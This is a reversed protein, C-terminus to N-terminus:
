YNFKLIYDIIRVILKDSYYQTKKLYKQICIDLFSRPDTDNLNIGTQKSLEVWENDWISIKRFYGPSYKAFYEECQRDFYYPGRSESIYRECDSVFNAWNRDINFILHKKISYMHHYRRYIEVASKEPYNIAEFCQYWRHKSLMRNWNTFQFHFVKIESCNVVKTTNRMPIRSTHILENESHSLGDDMYGWPFYGAKWYRKYDPFINILQFKFITGKPSSLMEDWENSDFSEPTFIEDCDLTIILKNGKIKRAENLLLKQRGVENFELSNNKVLIAKDYKNIIEISKDTSYQDALIIYDAWCSTNKLFLDLIWDENKVPTLCVILPKNKMKYNM